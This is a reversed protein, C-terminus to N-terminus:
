IQSNLNCYEFKLNCITKIEFYRNEKEKISKKM